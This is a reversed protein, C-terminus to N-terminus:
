EIFIKEVNNSFIEKRFNQKIYDVANAQIIETKKENLNNMKEFLEVENSFLFGNVGDTVIEKSGGANYCFTICRAAMAELPSIGLHEVLEPHIKDDVGYGTMHWYIHATRYLDLLQNFPINPILEISSDDQKLTQLHQFYATDENKLGGAIILKYNNYLPSQKKLTKFIEITKDHRKSHLHPFFRGVSIIINKKYNKEKSLNIFSDDLYPYLVESNIHQSNLWDKVFYSHTIFKTNFTKLKNQWPMHYLKKNPVMCYVYTKKASSITYSGDTVYLFVDFNKLLSLKAIPNLSQRFINPIFQVSTEFHINLKTKIESTVNSDWFIYPEYDHSILEKLLALLYREGGGMVDLYPDYLAIKKRKM